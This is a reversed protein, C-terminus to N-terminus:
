TKVKDKGAASDAIRGGSAPVLEPAAELASLPEVIWVMKDKYVLRARGGQPVAGDTCQAAWSTGQFRIRGKPGTDDVAELVEVIEGRADQDENSNDHRSEGAKLYRKFMPRLPVALGLSSFGWLLLSVPLSEVLGIARLGAVMLAAVGFFVPILSLHLAESAILLIGAVLFVITIPDV